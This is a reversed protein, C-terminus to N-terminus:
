APSSTANDPSTGLWVGLIAGCLAGALMGTGASLAWDAPTPPLRGLPVLTLIVLGAGVVAFPFVAALIAARIPREPQSASARAAVRGIGGASLLAPLGAFVAAFAIVRAFPALADGGVGCRSLVYAAAATAPLGLVVGLM